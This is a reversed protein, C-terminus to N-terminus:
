DAADPMSGEEALVGMNDLVGEILDNLQEATNAYETDPLKKGSYLKFCVGRGGSASFFGVGINETICNHLLQMMLEWNVNQFDFGVATQRKKFFSIAQPMTDRPQGKKFTATPRAM